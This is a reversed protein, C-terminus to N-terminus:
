KFIDIKGTERYQQMTKEYEIKHAESKAADYGRVKVLLMDVLRNSNLHRNPRQGLPTSRLLRRVQENSQTSNAILTVFDKDMVSHDRHGLFSYDMNALAVLKPYSRFGKLRAILLDDSEKPDVEVLDVKLGNHVTGREDDYWLAMNTVRVNWDAVEAIPKINSPYFSCQHLQLNGTFAMFRKQDYMEISGFHRGTEGDDKFPLNGKVVIHIGSGSVSLETYSVFNHIINYFDALEKESAPNSAKNDLDIITIGQERFLQLGIGDYQFIDNQSANYVSVAHEFHSFVTNPNHRLKNVNIPVKTTRNGDQRYYWVIWCPIDKLQQPIAAFNYQISTPKM